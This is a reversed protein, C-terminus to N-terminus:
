STLAAALKSMDPASELRVRLLVEGVRAQPKDIEALRLVDASGYLDQVIAKMANIAM